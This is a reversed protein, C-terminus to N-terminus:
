ARGARKRAEYDRREDPSLLDLDDIEGPEEGPERETQTPAATEVPETRAQSTPMEGINIQRSDVVPVPDGEKRPAQVGYPDDGPSLMIPKLKANELAREADQKAQMLGRRLTEGIDADINDDDAADKLIARIKPNGPNWDALMRMARRAARTESTEVPFEDGVPDKKRTGGGCWKVGVFEIQVGRVKIHWVVSSVAEPPINYMIRQMARRDLEEKAWKGAADDRRAMEALPKSVEVHEAYAYEIVGIELLEAQRRLYYYANKYFNGGLVNLETAPDIGVRQAWDAIARRTDRDLGKGWNTEAIQASVINQQRKLILANKIEEPLTGIALATKSTPDDVPDASSTTAPSANAPPSTSQQQDTTPQPQQQTAM